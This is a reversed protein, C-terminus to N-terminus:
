NAASNKKVQGDDAPAQAVDFLPVRIRAELNTPSYGVELDRIRAVGGGGSVGQMEIAIVIVM